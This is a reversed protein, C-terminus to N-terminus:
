GRRGKVFVNATLRGIRPDPSFNMDPEIIGSHLMSGRYVVLRDRRGEVRGIQAYHENSGLAYGSLSGNVREATAVFAGVNADSVVEIGTEIQRYFATGPTESLYLLVALYDPDTSDFHPARQGPALSDPPATIMSFSAGALDFGGMEFAGGIFPAAKEMMQRVFPWATDGPPIERRLGPYYNGASAPFPAVSAALEIAQEVAGTFDDVVVVPNRAEGVHRLEPKM